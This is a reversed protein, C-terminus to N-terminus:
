LFHYSSQQVCLRHMCCAQQLLVQHTTVITLKCAAACSGVSNIVLCRQHHVAMGLGLGQLYLCGGSCRGHTCDTVEFGVGCFLRYKYSPVTPWIFLGQTIGPFVAVPWCAWPWCPAVTHATVRELCLVHCPLRGAAHDTAAGVLQRASQWVLVCSVRYLLGLLASAM